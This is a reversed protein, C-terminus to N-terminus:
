NDYGPTCPVIHLNIEIADVIDSSFSQISGEFVINGRNTIQNQQFDQLSESAICVITLYFSCQRGQVLIRQKPASHSHCIGVVIADQTLFADRYTFCGIDDDGSETDFIAQGQKKGVLIENWEYFM